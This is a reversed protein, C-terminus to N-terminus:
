MNRILVKSSGSPNWKVASTAVSGRATSRASELRPNKSWLASQRSHATFGTGRHPVVRFEAVHVKSHRLRHSPWPPARSLDKDDGKPAGKAALISPATQVLAGSSLSRFHESSRRASLQSRSTTARSVPPRQLSTDRWNTALKAATLARSARETGSLRMPMSADTPWSPQRTKRGNMRMSKPPWEMQPEEAGQLPPHNHELDPLDTQLPTAVIKFKSPTFTQTHTHLSFFFRECEM